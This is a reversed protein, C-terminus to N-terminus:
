SLKDQVNRNRPLLSKWAAEQCSSQNECLHQRTGKGAPPRWPCALGLDLAQLSFVRRGEPRLPSVFPVISIVSRRKEVIRGKWWSPAPVKWTHGFEWQQTPWKKHAVHIQSIFWKAPLHRLPHCPRSGPFLFIWPLGNLFDQRLTFMSLPRQFIILKVRIKSRVRTHQQLELFM